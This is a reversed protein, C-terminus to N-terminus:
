PVAPREDFFAPPRRDRSAISWVRREGGGARILEGAGKLRQYPRATTAGCGGSYVITSSVIAYVAASFYRARAIIASRPAADVGLRTGAGEHGVMACVHAVGRRLDVNDM